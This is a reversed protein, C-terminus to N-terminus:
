FAEVGQFHSLDLDDFVGSPLDCLPHPPRGRWVGSGEEQEAKPQEKSDMRPRSGNERRQRPNAGRLSWERPDGLSGGSGAQSHLLAATSGSLGPLGLPTCVGGAHAHESVGTHEAHTCMHVCGHGVGVRGTEWVWCM